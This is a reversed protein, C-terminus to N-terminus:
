RRGHDLDADCRGRHRRSQSPRCRACASSLSRVARRETEWTVAMAMQAEAAAPGLLPSLALCIPILPFREAPKQKPRGTAMGPPEDLRM